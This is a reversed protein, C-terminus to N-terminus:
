LFIEYTIIKKNNRYNKEFQFKDNYEFFIDDSIMLLEDSSILVCKVIIFGSNKLYKNFFNIYKQKIITFCGCYLTEYDILENKYKLHEEFIKYLVYKYENMKHIVDYINYHEEYIFNSIDICYINKGNNNKKGIKFYQTDSDIGSFFLIEDYEDM